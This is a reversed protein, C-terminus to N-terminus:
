VRGARPSDNLKEVTTPDQMPLSPRKAERNRDPRKRPAKLIVYHKLHILLDEFSSEVWRCNRRIKGILMAGQITAVCFNALQEVDADSALRGAVKERSFFSEFRSLMLDIILSISQRALEDGEKLESGLTGIPCSRTMNFKKHFEVHSRLCQQVGEWSDFEYKVPGIGAALGEFYYRLVAGTLESKNKFNQRFEAKAIGAAEVIEDATTSEVGRKHFLNAAARVILLRADQPFRIRSGM